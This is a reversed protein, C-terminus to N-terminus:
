LSTSSQSMPVARPLACPCRHGVIHASRQALPAAPATARSDTRTHSQQQPQCRRINAHVDSVKAFNIAVHNAGSARRGDIGLWFHKVACADLLSDLRLQATIPELACLPALLLYMSTAFDPSPLQM